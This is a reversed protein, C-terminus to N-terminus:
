SLRNPSLHCKSQSLFFFVLDWWLSSLDIRGKSSRSHRKGSTRKLKWTRSSSMLPFVDCYGLRLSQQILFGWMGWLLLGKVNFIDYSLSNKTVRETGPKFRLKMALVLFPHRWSIKSTTIPEIDRAGIRWLGGLTLLQKGVLLLMNLSYKTFYTWIIYALFSFPIRLTRRCEECNETDM